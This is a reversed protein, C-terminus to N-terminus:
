PYSFWQTNAAVYHFSEVAGAGISLSTVNSGATTLIGGAIPSTIIFSGAQSNKVVVGAGDTPSVPLIYSTPTTGGIFVIGKGTSAVATGTTIVQVQQSIIGDIIQNGSGDDLTNVPGAISTTFTKAGAISQTSTTLIGGFSANAPELSLVGGVINAGNANPTGGIAALTVGNTGNTGNSGVNGDVGSYGRPGREGSKALACASMIVAALVLLVFIVWALSPM